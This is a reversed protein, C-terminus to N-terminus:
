FTPITGTAVNQRDESTTIITGNCTAAQSVAPPIFLFSGPILGNLSAEEKMATVYAPEGRPPSRRIYEDTKERKIADASRGCDICSTYMKKSVNEYPVADQVHYSASFGSNAPQPLPASPTELVPGREHPPPSIPSELVLLLTKCLERNEIERSKQPARQM